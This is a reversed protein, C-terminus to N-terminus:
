TPTGATSNVEQKEHEGVSTHSSYFVQSPVLVCMGWLLSWAEYLSVPALSLGLGSDMSQNLLRARSAHCLPM